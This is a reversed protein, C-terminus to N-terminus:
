ISIFFVMTHFNSMMAKRVSHIMRSISRKSDFHFMSVLVKNSIGLHMKILFIALAVGKSRICSRRM